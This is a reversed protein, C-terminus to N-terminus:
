WSEIRTDFIRISDYPALTWWFFSAWLSMGTFMLIVLGFVGVAFGVFGNVVLWVIDRWTNADAAVQRLRRMVGGTPVRFASPVPEPLGLGVLWRHVDTWARIALVVFPILVFGLGAFMVSMVSLPLMMLMPIAVPASLGVAALYVVSRGWQKVM